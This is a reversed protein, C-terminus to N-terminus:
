LRLFLFLEDDFALLYRDFRDDFLYFDQEFLVLAYVEKIEELFLVVDGDGNRIEEPHQFYDFKPVCPHFLGTTETIYEQVSRERFGSGM